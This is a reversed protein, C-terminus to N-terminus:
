LKGQVEAWAEDLAAEVAPGVALRYSLVKGQYEVHALDQSVLKKLITNLTDHNM